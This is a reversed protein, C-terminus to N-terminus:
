TTTSTSIAVCNMPNSNIKLADIFSLNFDKFYNVLFLNNSLFLM